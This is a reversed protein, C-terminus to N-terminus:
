WERKTAHQYIITMPTLLLDLEMVVLSIIHLSERMRQGLSETQNIWYFIINSIRNDYVVVLSEGLTHISVHEQSNHFSDHLTFIEILSQDNRCLWSSQGKDGLQWNHQCFGLM